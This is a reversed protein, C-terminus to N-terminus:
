CLKSLNDWIDEHTINLLFHGSHVIIVFTQYQHWVVTMIEMFGLARFSFFQAIQRLTGLHEM